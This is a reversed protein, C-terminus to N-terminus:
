ADTVCRDEYYEYLKIVNPHDMLKLLGIENRLDDLLEPDIRRMEMGAPPRCSLASVDLPPTSHAPHPVYRAVVVASPVAVRRCPAPHRRGRLSRSTRCGWAARLAPGCECKLAYVEGTLRHRVQYVKGTMGQGIERTVEYQEWVSTHKVEHVLNQRRIPPRTSAPPTPCSHHSAFFPRSIYYSARISRCTSRIHQFCPLPVRHSVCLACDVRWASEVGM